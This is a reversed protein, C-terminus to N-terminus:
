FHWKIYKEGGGGGSTATQEQPGPWQINCVDRALGAESSHKKCADRMSFNKLCERRKHSVGGKRLCWSSLCRMCRDQLRHEASSDKCPCGSGILHGETCTSYASHVSHSMPTEDRM